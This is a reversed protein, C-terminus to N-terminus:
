GLREKKFGDDITDFITPHMRSRSPNVVGQEAWGLYCTFIIDSTFVQNLAFIVFRLRDQVTQFDKGGLGFGNQFKVTGHADAFIELTCFGLLDPRMNLSM